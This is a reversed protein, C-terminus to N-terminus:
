GMSLLLQFGGFANSECQGIHQLFEHFVVGTDGADHPFPTRFYVCIHANSCGHREPYLRLCRGEYEAKM